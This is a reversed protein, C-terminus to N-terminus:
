SAQQGMKEQRWWRYGVIGGILFPLVMLYIIGSNMGEGAKKGMQASTKTCISCQSTALSPKICLIFLALFAGIIFSIRM